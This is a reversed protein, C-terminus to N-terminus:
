NDQHACAESLARNGGSVDQGDITIRGTKADFTVSAVELASGEFPTGSGALPEIEVPFQYIRRPEYVYGGDLDAPAVASGDAAIGPKYDAEDSVYPALTRCTEADIKVIRLPEGRGALEEAQALSSALCLSIVIPLGWGARSMGIIHKPTM